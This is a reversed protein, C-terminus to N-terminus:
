AARQLNADLCLQHERQFRRCKVYRTSLIRYGGVDLVLIVTQHDTALNRQFDSLRSTKPHLLARCGGSVKRFIEPPWRFGGPKVMGIENQLPKSKDHKERLSANNQPVRTLIANCLFFVYAYCFLLDCCKFYRLFFSKQCNEISIFLYM